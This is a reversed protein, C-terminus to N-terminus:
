RGSLADRAKLDASTPLPGTSVEGLLRAELAEAEARFVTGALHLYIRTTQMSPHGAKAMVAIESAGSAADHTIVTHRLDHFPRLTGTVGAATQAVELAEKFTEAQYVTGREPPLVRARRRRPFRVAALPRAARRRPTAM